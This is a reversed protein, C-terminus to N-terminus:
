NLLKLLGGGGGPIQPNDIKWNNMWKNMLDTMWENLWENM